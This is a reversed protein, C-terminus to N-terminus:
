DKDKRKAQSAKTKSSAKEAGAKAKSSTKKVTAKKAKKAAPKKAEKKDKPATKKPAAKKEDSVELIKLVTLAQRHGRTRRYNQRRRKKFVIIKAGKKQRVIEASVKCGSVLPTGITVADGTGIMFVTDFQVKDGAAGDLKEVEVIDDKAVKYQKGGTKVVAYMTKEM